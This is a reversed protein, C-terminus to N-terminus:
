IFVSKIRPRSLIYLVSLCFGIDLAYQVLMAALALSEFSVGFNNNLSLYNYQRDLGQAHALFASYPHKWYITAMTFISIGIAIWRGIKNFTLLGLAAMIGAIRQFWSFGYRVTALWLPMHGYIEFYWQKKMILVQMQILSSVLYMLGLIRVVNGCSVGGVFLRSQAEQATNIASRKPPGDEKVCDLIGKQENEILSAGGQQVL